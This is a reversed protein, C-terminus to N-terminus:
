DGRLAAVPRAQLARLNGLVGSVGVGLVMAVLALASWAPQLQFDLQMLETLVGWALVNAGLVGVVGSVLGLLAYEVGLVAAVGARTTGLTKLLAVQQARRETSAAIVSFLIVVGALATFAGLAQIALGLKGLVGVARERLERVSVMTVNPASAALADRLAEEQEPAVQATVLRSQPADELVGPEVLLFFNMEMSEWHVERLSTVRMEVPLGQVDFTLTDGLGVGLREAYRRELSVEAREPDSAFAGAVLTNSEPLAPGYSLRQERTFAWRERDSLGAVLTETDEGDIASLRGMVMPASRVRAAGHAELSAEVEAWQDPQVDIFFASPATEPFRAGLQDGLRAQILWTGLVVVLGLGLAVMASLTNAGPRALAALGHRLWWRSLGRGARSLGRSLREAGLALLGVVGLVTGTFLGGILLSGSQLVAVAGIGALVGAALLAQTLLPEAAPEVDRRLVRLPPVRKAQRLPIWAFLLATGTGLAAGQLAALPQWPRVVEPPLLDGLLLPVLTLAGMGLAAGLASGALGLVATQALVLRSVEDPTLGLCRLTALDDLRQALWARIVQAVGAGGVLLSLLAALGLFREAREVGQRISPQAESWTEVRTWASVEEQAGLWDVLAGAQAEPVRFLAKYTIRGATTDLPTRALGEASVFVRPGPALTADVRDPERLVQGRVVFPQGGLLLTGGEQVGLRTLLQPQVVVGDEGLLSALPADPELELAGYFPYPGDVVKLDVLVSRGPPGGEAAPASAMTNFIRLDAREAGLEPPVADLVEPLPRRGTVAVDAALLPRAELRMARDVTDALGAVSVVAAVGVSLCAVFFLVRRASGRLERRMLTLLLGLSM